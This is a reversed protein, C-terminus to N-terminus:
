RAAAKAALKLFGASNIHTVAVALADAADATASLAGGALVREIMFQVQQKTAGGAGTVSQKVQSPSYEYVELGLQAATLFAIGQAQIAPIATKLNLKMFVREVAVADPRWKSMLMKLADYQQRLRLPVPGPKTVLIGADLAVLGSGSREVVGFGM